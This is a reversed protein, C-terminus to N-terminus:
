VKLTGFCLWPDGFVQILLNLMVVNGDKNGREYKDRLVACRLKADNSPVGM